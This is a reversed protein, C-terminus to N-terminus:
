GDAPFTRTPKLWGDGRPQLLAVLRGAADIAATEGTHVCDPRELLQGNALRRSEQEDVLLSPLGVIAARPPLLFQGINDRTLQEPAVANELRFDGIATRALASMVADSGVARALDRGLSRVYTGSGCEIELSLRPYDYDTLTLQHITVTRPALDVQQGARALDYARRGAVKLASFAPPRQSIEGLFNPIAAEFEARTPQPPHDLLTVEGEIDETPSTRGLLFQGRYRKPMQQVYEILRTAQGMCIVLVGTALPDLTGAHGVKAPKVLRAVVDVVRRSTMGPPKHVILLGNRAHSM